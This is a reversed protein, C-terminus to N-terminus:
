ENVTLSLDKNIISCFILYLSKLHIFIAFLSIFYFVSKLVYYGKHWFLADAITRLEPSSIYLMGATSISTLLTYGFILYFIVTSKKLIKGYMNESWLYSNSFIIMPIVATVTIVPFIRNSYQFM